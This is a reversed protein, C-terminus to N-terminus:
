RQIFYALFFIQLAVIQFYPLPHDNLAVLM